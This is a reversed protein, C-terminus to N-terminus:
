AVGYVLMYEQCPTSSRAFRVQKDKGNDAAGRLIGLGSMQYGAKSEGM